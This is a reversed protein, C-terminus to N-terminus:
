RPRCDAPHRERLVEGSGGPSRHSQHSRRNLVQPCIRLRMLTTPFRADVDGRRCRRKARSEGAIGATQPWGTVSEPVMAVSVGIGASLEGGPFVGALGPLNLAGTWRKEVRRATRAQWSGRRAMKSGRGADIRAWNKKCIRLGSGGSRSRDSRGDPMGCHSHVSTSLNARWCINAGRPSWLM